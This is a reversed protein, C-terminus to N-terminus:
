RRLENLIFEFPKLDNLITCRYELDDLGMRFWVKNCIMRYHGFGNLIRTHQRKYTFTTGHWELNDSIERDIQIAEINSIIEFSEYIDLDLVNDCFNKFTAWIWWITRLCWKKAGFRALGNQNNWITFITEAQDVIDLM